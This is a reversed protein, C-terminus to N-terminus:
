KPRNLPRARRHRYPCHGKFRDAHQPPVIFPADPRGCRNEKSDLLPEVARVCSDHPSRTSVWREWGRSCVVGSDTRDWPLVRGGLTHHMACRGHTTSQNTTTLDPHLGGWNMTSPSNARHIGFHDKSREHERQSQNGLAVTTATALTGGGTLLGTGRSTLRAARAAGAAVAAVQEGTQPVQESAAAAARALRDAALGRLAAAGLRGAAFLGARLSTGRSARLSTLGGAHLGAFRSTLRSTAGATAAAGAEGDDRGHLVPHMAHQVHQEAAAAALAATGTLLSTTAATATTTFNGGRGLGRGLLSGRKRRRLTIGRGRQHPALVEEASASDHSRLSLEWLKAPRSTLWEWCAQQM